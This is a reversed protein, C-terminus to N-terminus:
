EQSRSQASKQNAYFQIGAGLLLLILCSLFKDQEAGAGGIALFYGGSIICRFVKKTTSQEKLCISRVSWAALILGLLALVPTM